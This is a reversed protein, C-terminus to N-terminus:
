QTFDLYKLFTNQIKGNGFFLRGDAFATSLNMMMGDNRWSKILGADSGNHSCLDLSKVFYGDKPKDIYYNTHDTYIGYSVNKLRVTFIYLCNKPRKIFDETDDSINEYAYNRNKEDSLQYWTSDKYESTADVHDINEWVWKKNKPATFRAGKQVYDVLGLSLAIPNYVTSKNGLCFLALENRFPEDIGRDITQALSLVADWEADTNDKTGLYKTPDKSIFEDYILIVYESFSNSKFNEEDALAIYAGCEEWVPKEDEDFEYAVWYRGNFPKFAIIKGLEDGLYKNYIEVANNFFTKYTKEVDKQRRRSYVFKKDFLKYTILSLLAVQTSKGVSRSGTVLMAQRGYSLIKTIDWFGHNVKNLFKYCKGFNFM